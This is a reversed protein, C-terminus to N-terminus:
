VTCKQSKEASAMTLASAITVRRLGTAAASQSTFTINASAASYTISPACKRPAACTSTYAPAIMTTNTKTTM